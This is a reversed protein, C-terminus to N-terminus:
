EEIVYRWKRIFEDISFFNKVTERANKGLQQALINDKLLLNCYDIYDKENFAVLGNYNHRIPSTPHFMTVVPLGSAMAELLSLNFGEEPEDALYLYANHSKYYSILDNYNEAKKAAELYPNYGIISTPIKKEINKLFNFKFYHRHLNNGVVLLKDATFDSISFDNIDIGPNIVFGNIGWSMKACPSIFVFKINRNTKSIINLINKYGFKAARHLYNPHLESRQYRGHTTYILKVDSTRKLYKLVMFFDKRYHSIITKYKSNKINIVAEDLSILNVNSPLPREDIDWKSCTDFELGTKSLLYSYGTHRNFNLITNM